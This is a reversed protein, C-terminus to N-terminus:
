LNFNIKLFKMFTMCQFSMFIKKWTPLFYKKWYKRGVHFFITSSINEEPRFFLPLFESSVARRFFNVVRYGLWKFYPHSPAVSMYILTSCQKYHWTNLTPVQYQGATKVPPKLRNKGGWDIGGFHDIGTLVLKKFIIEQFWSNKIVYYVM